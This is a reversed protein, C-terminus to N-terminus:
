NLARLRVKLEESFIISARSRDTHLVVIIDNSNWGSLNPIEKLRAEVYERFVCHLRNEPPVYLYQKTHEQINALLKELITNADDPLIETEVHEDDINM